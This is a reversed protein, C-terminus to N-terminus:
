RSRRRRRTSCSSRARARRPRRGAQLPLAALPRVRGGAEAAAHRLAHQHRARHLPQLRHHAVARRAGRGRPVRGGDAAAVRGDRDARRLRQRLGHGDPRPGEERRAQRRGRVQRGRRAADVEVGPRRHELVGRHRARPHQRQPGLRARSRPRRLRHRLGLRRRRRDLREQARPARAADAPQAAQASRDLADLMATSRRWATGSRTSRTRRPRRRRSSSASARRRRAAARAGDAAREAQERQKDLSLRFGLGFEANDEFLSNAWAPGRGDKNVTWPTTPLNGGYISSCGTANAVLLRDGFLQTLLQLYPTEGCGACAGSFEFLPTLYQAGRVLSADLGAPQNDPLTTSSSSTRESASSSRRRRSWTSPASAPRKSAARPVSRSASSAAPATRSPWRCRTACTRSAAAPSRRPRSARAARRGARVRRLLARPDGRAPLGDRLQRVPHLAGAGLGPRHRLHQAEGVADDGTPYTGDVPLASVPLEDGRGAIMMATVQQVFTPRTRRARDAAADRTSTAAAPLTSRTCTARAHSRRGRLEERRAGQGEQRLDDRDRGQDQAIAEDRPLVGSIAFFCTQMITNIRGPWARTPRWGTPTSSTSGSAAQPHDGGADHAAARGLGRGSRLPQQAPVGRRRGGRRAHRRARPVPVPPLRRLQARQVLYTSRIPQPGFRLHSTTRSGSKKSDYVFYGQAYGPTEEGIIKISNKNAGVTGDAGLGYFICGVVDAGRHRVRPDYALSTHSVDDNIGVTFHNKPSPRRSTTSCRRSWRRRSSRRRCATAAASSARCRAHPPQDAMAEAFATVVDQYLPEGSAGPEKTRDLM